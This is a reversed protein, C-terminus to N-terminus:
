RNLSSRRGLELFQFSQELVLWIGSMLNAELCFLRLFTVYRGKLRYLIKFSGTMGRSAEDFTQFDTLPREKQAFWIWKLQGLAEAIPLLLGAKAITTLLALLSNLTIYSPWNPLGRDDYKLLVGVLAMSAVLSLMSSVIELLWWDTIWRRLWSRDDRWEVLQENEGESDAASVKAFSAHKETTDSGIGHHVPTGSDRYNATSTSPTILESSTSDLNTAM